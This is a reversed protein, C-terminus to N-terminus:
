AIHASIMNWLSLTVDAHRSPLGQYFFLSGAYAAVIEGAVERTRRRRRLGGNGLGSSNYLM